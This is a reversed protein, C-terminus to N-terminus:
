FLSSIYKNKRELIEKDKNLKRNEEKQIKLEDEILKCKEKLNKNEDELLELEHKLMQKDRIITEYKEIFASKSSVVSTNNDTENDGHNLESTLNSIDISAFNNILEEDNSNIYAKLQNFLLELLLLLDRKFLIPPNKFYPLNNKIGYIYLEIRTILQEIDKNTYSEIIEKKLYENIIKKIEKREETKDKGIPNEVLKKAIDDVIGIELLDIIKNIQNQKKDTNKRKYTNKKNIYLVIKDDKVYEKNM